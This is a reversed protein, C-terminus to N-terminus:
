HKNLKLIDQQLRLLSAKIKKEIERYPMTEKATFMFALTIQLKNESLFDYLESKNKRYAERMLRKLRNRHVAKKFQRKPVAFLVKAPFEDAPIKAEAQLYVLKFPYSFFSRGQNFMMGITSRNCLRESKKFTQKPQM